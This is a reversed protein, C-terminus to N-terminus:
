GRSAAARKRLRQWHGTPDALRSSLNKVVQSVSTVISIAPEFGPAAEPCRSVIALWLPLNTAMVDEHLGRISALSLCSLAAAWFEADEPTLGGWRM